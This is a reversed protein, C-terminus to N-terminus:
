RQPAAVLWMQIGCRKWRWGTRQCRRMRHVAILLHRWRRARARICAGLWLIEGHAVVNRQWCQEVEEILCAAAAGTALDAAATADGGVGIGDAAAGARAAVVVVGTARDCGLVIAVLAVVALLHVRGRHAQGLMALEVAWGGLAVLLLLLMRALLAALEIGCDSRELHVYAGM